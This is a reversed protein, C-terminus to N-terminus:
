TLMRKGTEKEEDTMAEMKSFTRTVTATNAYFDNVDTFSADYYIEANAM